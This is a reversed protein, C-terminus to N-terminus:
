SWTDTQKERETQNENEEYDSLSETDRESARDFGFLIQSLTAYNKITESGRICILRALPDPM